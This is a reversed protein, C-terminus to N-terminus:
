GGVRAERRAAGHRTRTIYCCRVRFAAAQSDPKIKGIHVYKENTERHLTNHFILGVQALSLRRARRAGV